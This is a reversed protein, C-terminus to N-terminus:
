SFFKLTTTQMSLFLLKKFIVIFAKKSLYQKYNKTWQLIIHIKRELGKVDFRSRIPISFIHARINAASTVFDMSAPDDQAYFYFCHHFYVMSKESTFFLTWYMCFLSSPLSHFDLM